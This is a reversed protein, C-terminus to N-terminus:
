PSVIVIVPLPKEVFTASIWSFIVSFIVMVLEVAVSITKLKGAKFAPSCSKSNFTTPFPFALTFLSM